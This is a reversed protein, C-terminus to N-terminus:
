QTVETVAIVTFGTECKLSIPWPVRSVDLLSGLGDRMGSGGALVGHFNTPSVNTSAICYLVPNTGVNQITRLVVRGATTSENTSLVTVVANNTVTVLLPASVGTGLQNVRVLAGAQGAAEVMGALLAALSWRMRGLWGAQNTKM